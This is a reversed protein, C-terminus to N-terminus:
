TVSAYNCKKALPCNVCNPNRPGCLLAGLDLIGWNVIRPDDGEEVVELAWPTQLRDLVPRFLSLDCFPDRTGSFFLLYSDFGRLLLERLGSGVQFLSGIQQGFSHRLRM